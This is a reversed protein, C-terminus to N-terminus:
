AATVWGRELISSNTTNKGPTIRARPTGHALLGGRRRRAGGVRAAVLKDGREPSKQELPAREIFQGHVAGLARLLLRALAEVPHQGPEAQQGVDVHGPQQGLEEAHRQGIGFIQWLHRQQGVLQLEIEEGAVPQQRKGFGAVGDDDGGGIGEIDVRDGADAKQEAARDLRPHHRGADDLAGDLLDVAPRAGDGAALLRAGPLGAVIVHAAEFVQCALGGDDPERMVEDRAGDVHLCGIDM